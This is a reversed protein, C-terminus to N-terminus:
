TMIFILTEAVDGAQGDWGRWPLVESPKWIEVYVEPEWVSLCAAGCGGFEPSTVAGWEASRPMPVPTQFCSCIFAFIAKKKEKMM